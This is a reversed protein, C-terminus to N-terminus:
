SHTLANCHMVHRPDEQGALRASRCPTGFVSASTRQLLYDADCSPCERRMRSMRGSSAEGRCTLQMRSVPIIGSGPTIPSRGLLAPPLTGSLPTVPLGVGIGLGIGQPVAVSHPGVNTNLALAKPDGFMPTPAYEGTPMFGHIYM